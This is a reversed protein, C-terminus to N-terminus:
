AYQQWFLKFITIAVVILFFIRVFKTGSKMVVKSGLLAGIVQAAGMVLGAQLIVNGSILFAVVSVVNSTANMVKTHATAKILNFGLLSAFAITWFSGTGPGFFGDYFGIALGFIVYYLSEKIKPKSAGEGMSKNFLSYLFLATLLFPIAKVLFDASLSQVSLSGAVAGIATWLIGASVKKFDIYGGRWYNFAATIAGFSSQVKNTGLALHPPVGVALLAPVTIIGGGGAISDVFGGLLSSCFLIM